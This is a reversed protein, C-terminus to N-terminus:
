LRCTDNGNDTRQNNGKGVDGALHATHTNHERSKKCTSILVPTIM